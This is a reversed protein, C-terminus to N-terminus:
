KGCNQMFIRLVDPHAFQMCKILKCRQPAQEVQIMFQVLAQVEVRNTPAGRKLAAM